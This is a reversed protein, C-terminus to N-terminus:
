RVNKKNEKFDELLDSQLITKRKLFYNKNEEPNTM